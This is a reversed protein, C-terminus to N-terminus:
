LPTRHYAPSQREPTLIRLAARRPLARAVAAFLTNKTGCIVTPQKRRHLAALATAAVQEPSQVLGAPVDAGSHPQSRTSTMGPCLGMVYIGRAKHEHWLSESFSTVFAKTASYVSLNAMPAFALTSSVNVLAGGPQAGTLFAHALTLLAHCNLNMMATARELPVDVFPGSSATGANNVLVDFRGQQVGHVVRGLGDETALDAVLASHGGEGLGDIVARLRAEDRAIGTVTYGDAALARAVARGIGESAGTVLAMGRTTSGIM